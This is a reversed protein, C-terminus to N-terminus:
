SRYDYRYGPRDFLVLQHGRYNWEPAARQPLIERNHEIFAVAEPRLPPPRPPRPGAAEPWADLKVRLLALFDLEVSTAGPYLHYIWRRARMWAM